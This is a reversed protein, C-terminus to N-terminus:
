DPGGGPAPTPVHQSVCAFHSPVGRRSGWAGAFVARAGVAAVRRGEIRGYVGRVV